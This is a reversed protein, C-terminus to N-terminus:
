QGQNSYIDPWTPFEDSTDPSTPGHVVSPVLTWVGNTKSANASWDWSIRGLTVYISDPSFDPKFIVYDKFFDVISCQNGGFVPHVLGFGPMDNFDLFAPDQSLVWLQSQDNV